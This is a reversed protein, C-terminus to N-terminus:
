GVERKRANRSGEAGLFEASNKTATQIIQAPKLGAEAMLQMEVHEFYGPFRAPPGTDTGFGLKVGSDAIRKLNKKAM